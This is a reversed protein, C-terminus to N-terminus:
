QRQQYSYRQRRDAARARENRHNRFPRRCYVARRQRLRARQRCHDDERPPTRLRPHLDIRTAEAHHVVNTVAEQAIRVLESETRPPLPRYTGHVEVQTKIQTSATVREAMQVLQSALDQNESNQSRLEWIARRADDLGTRVLEQAEDLHQRATDASQSLVRGVIQLQVSVAVFGQALTDHIERAIRNREALVVNFRSEVQRVRWLYICYGLLAAALVLLLYFWITQYFYPRLQFALSAPAASWVGDNNCATVLFKYHGPRLNTYYASRESGADIWQHDFGDLKYRFRVKDPAAFSLAAYVFAFRRSGAALKLPASDSKTLAAESQPKDDVSFNEIAMPPPVRNTALHAPDSTAVGKLTAFWLMGNQLRWAAPHGGSSAESIKMGDAIGYSAVPVSPLAGDAYSNLASRNARYIGENSSFWLNDSDDALISYINAPLAVGEPRIAKFTGNRWRNLGGGNTGIWLTGDPDQHLATIIRNSLGDKESYNHFRGNSWHTLGGLTSIWMGGDRAQLMAGVLDSGLGDLATWTTFKGDKFQSLGRRTGIWLTGQADFYLSRVFDDALGDASTFVTVKGAHMRDLGDPTGLWLDGNPASAISLVINSTLGNATTLASFGDKDITDLNVRDLGGGRTGLWMTGAHDQTVALIHDDSIGDEATYTTFKRDRLIDVGGSETGLWLNGERDEAIALVM